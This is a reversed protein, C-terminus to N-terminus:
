IIPQTLLFPVLNDNLWSPILEQPFNKNFFLLNLSNHYQINKIPIISYSTSEVAKLASTMFLIQSSPEIGLRERM